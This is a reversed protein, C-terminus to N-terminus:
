TAKDAGVRMLIFVPILGAVVITLAPIAAAEWYGEMSMFYAWLALTNMGFPRLLLTAPLEKMVDVFILIAGAAMGTSVLPFHIRRLVRWPSAGMTRAAHEMNPTVKEMSSEVSNFGVSMFRVIYAYILAMVTGTLLYSPDTRGLSEAFDTLAGDIPSVFILVGAAIVAGPMAYGLTVFRTIFRPVFRKRTAATARVGYAILLALLVTIGAAVGALSVSNGIYEGYVQQWMGVSPSEIEDIAWFILQTAPLVFAVGILLTCAGSALWKGIGTFRIRQPRRGRSSGAQYYRAKGRLLRELLIIALAFFLLMSALETAPGSDYETNWIVVIRESLTPFGFFSVAGYDTMAEMMALISGAVLSPRALPLVLRFFTQIRNYGMVQAAEFTTAAQERFAARALIYVYPYLVLTLVLILGGPSSINPFWYGDRGFWDRLQTQVPGAFEFTSVFVFGMIFGPIALPLLLLHEFWRRGPFDYATVLWAFSTGIFFTGVGVGVVLILTNLLVRPLFTDWMRQWLETTPNLIEAVLVGIPILVVITILLPIVLM